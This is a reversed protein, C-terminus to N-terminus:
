HPYVWDRLTLSLAPVHSIVVLCALVV